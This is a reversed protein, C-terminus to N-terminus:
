PRARPQPCRRPAAEQQDPDRRRRGAERHRRLLVDDGIVELPIQVQGVVALPMTLVTIRETRSRRWWLLVTGVLCLSTQLVAMPLDHDDELLDTVAELLALSMVALDRARPLWAPSKM